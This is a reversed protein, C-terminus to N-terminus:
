QDMGWNVLLTGRARELRLRAKHLRGLARAVREELELARLRATSVRTFDSAGAAYEAEALRLAEEHAPLAESVLMHHELESHSLEHSAREIEVRNTREVVAVEARAREYEARELAEQYAWPRQFALPVGLMGTVIQDGTGERQYQVGVSFSPVQQAVQYDIRAAAVRARASAAAVDPHEGSPTGRSGAASPRLEELAGRAALGQDVGTAFRLDLSADVVLGEADLVSTRILAVDSAAQASEAPQGEGHAVRASAIALTRQAAVLASQRLALLREALALEIWANGAREAALLRVREVDSVTSRVEARALKEQAAGVDVLAIPQSVGVVVEPTTTGRSFRPGLQATLEPAQVLLPNSRSVAERYARAPARAAGVGPGHEAGLRLAEEYSMRRASTHGQHGAEAHSAAPPAAPPTESAWADGAAAWAVLSVALAGLPRRRCLRAM